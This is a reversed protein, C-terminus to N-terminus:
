PNPLGNRRAHPAVVRKLHPIEAIQQAAQEDLRVDEVVLSELRRAEHANSFSLGRDGSSLRVLTLTVLRNPIDFQFDDPNTTYLECDCMQLTELRSLDQLSASSALDVRCRYLSLHRLNHLQSLATVTDPTFSSEALSLQHVSVHGFRFPSQRWGASSPANGKISHVMAREAQEQRGCYSYWGLLLCLVSTVLVLARLSVQGSKAKLMFSRVIDM